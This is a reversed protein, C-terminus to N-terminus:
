RKNRAAKDAERKKKVEKAHWDIYARDLKRVYYFLDEEQEGVFGHKLAYENIALWPVPGTTAQSLSRCSSLDMFAM